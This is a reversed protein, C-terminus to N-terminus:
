SRGLTVKATHSQGDRLYSVEVTTGPAYYRTAAILGDATTTPFDNVKTVVDGARLGAKDAAGGSVVETLPVGQEPAQETGAGQLTVGLTARPASGNEILDGAVRIAVDAPIAFGIGINGSQGGGETTGTSAISSNIGVVAGNLDVLPGGSNGPNIAADTQVALYVADNNTGSRVPRATNSVIGSTVSESLGLPAGVAVVSQGVTLSGSKAFTAPKLDKAGAVKIVALDM